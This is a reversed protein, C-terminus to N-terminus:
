SFCVRWNQSTSSAQYRSLPVELNPFDNPNFSATSRIIRVPQGQSQASPVITINESLRFATASDQVNNSSERNSNNSSSTVAGRNAFQM